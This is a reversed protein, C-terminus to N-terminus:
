IFHAADPRDMVRQAKEFQHPTIPSSPLRKRPMEKRCSRVCHAWSDREQNRICATAPSHFRDTLSSLSFYSAVELTNM